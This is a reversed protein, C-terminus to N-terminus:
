DAVRGPLHKVAVGPGYSGPRAALGGSMTATVCSPYEKPPGGCALLRTAPLLSRHAVVLRASAGLARMQARADFMMRAHGTAGSHQLDVRRYEIGEQTFAWELAEVDNSAAVWGARPTLLLARATVGTASPSLYTV